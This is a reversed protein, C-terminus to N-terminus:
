QNVFRLYHNVVICSSQATFPIFNKGNVAHDVKTIHMINLILVADINQKPYQYSRYYFTIEREKFDQIVWQFIFHLLNRLHVEFSDFGISCIMHPELLPIRLFYTLLFPIARNLSYGSYEIDGFMIPYFSLMICYIHLKPPCFSFDFEPM